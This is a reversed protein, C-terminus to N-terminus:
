EATHPSMSCTFDDYVTCLHVWQPMGPGIGELNYRGMIVVIKCPWETGEAPLSVRVISICDTSVREM